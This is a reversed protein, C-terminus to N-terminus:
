LPGLTTFFEALSADVPRMPEIGLASVKATDLVSYAPRRAPTPWDSTKIPEIEVPLDVGNALKYAEVSRVAFDHWSMEEPGVTHYIGGSPQLAVLDCLVRALDITCTPCGRQDAVVRLPKGAAWVTAMTRPFCKGHPGYLWATRCVLADPNEKLVLREGLLKSSGYASVPNTPDDERYPRSGSGDFVFDTSIHVMRWKIDKFLSALMGPVIGNLRQALATEEEAKDVATYAACNFVWDFEGWDRDKLKQVQAPVTLDIDALDLGVVDWARRRCEAVIDTGLM